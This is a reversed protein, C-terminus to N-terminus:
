YDDRAIEALGDATTASFQVEFMPGSLVEYKPSTASGTAWDRLPGDRSIRFKVVMSGTAGPNVGVTTGGPLNFVSKTAGAAVTYHEDRVNKTSM